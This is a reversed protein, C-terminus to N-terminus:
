ADGWGGSGHAAEYVAEYYEDRERKCDACYVHDTVYRGQPLRVLDYHQKITRQRAQKLTTDLVRGAYTPGYGCQDCQAWWMGANTYLSM